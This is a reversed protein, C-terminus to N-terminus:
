KLTEVGYLDTLGRSAVRVYSEVRGLLNKAIILMDDPRLSLDERVGHLSSPSSMSITNIVKVECVGCQSTSSLLVTSEKSTEKIGGSLAIAQLVTVKGHIDYIGPRPGPEGHCERIRQAM